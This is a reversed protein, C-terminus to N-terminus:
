KIKKFKEKYIDHMIMKKDYSNKKELMAIKVDILSMMLNYHKQINPVIETKEKAFDIKM